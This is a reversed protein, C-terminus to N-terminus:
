YGLVSIESILDVREADHLNGKNAYHALLSSFMRNKFENGRTDFIRCADRITEPDGMEARALLLTLQLRDDEPDTEILKRVAALTRVAAAKDGKRNHAVAIRCWAAPDRRDESLQSIM